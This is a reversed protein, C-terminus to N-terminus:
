RIPDGAATRGDSGRPGRSSCPHAGGRLPGPGAPTGSGSAGNPRDRGPCAHTPTGAGNAPRGAVNRSGRSCGSGVRRRGPGSCVRVTGAAEFIGEGQSRLAVACARTAGHTVPRIPAGWFAMVADGIYKDVIGEESRIATEVQELYDALAAVLADPTLDEAIVSFNAVDSFMVMLRLTEGGLSAEQGSRILLRVVGFACVKRLLAARGENRRARRSYRAASHWGCRRHVARHQTAARGPCRLRAPFRLHHCLPAGALTERSPADTPVSM